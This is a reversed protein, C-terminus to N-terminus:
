PKGPNIIPTQAPEAPTPQDVLKKGISVALEMAALPGDLSGDPGAQSNKAAIVVALRIFAREDDTFDIAAM